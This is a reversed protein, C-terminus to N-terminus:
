VAFAAGITTAVLLPDCILSVCSEVVALADARPPKQELISQLAQTIADTYNAQRSEAKGFTWGMINM